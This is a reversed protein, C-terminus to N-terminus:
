IADVKREFVKISVQKVQIQHLLYYESSNQLSDYPGPEINDLIMLQAKADYETVVNHFFNQTSLFGTNNSTLHIFELYGPAYISKNYFNNHEMYVVLKEQAQIRAIVTLEDNYITFTYLGMAVMIGLIIPFYFPKMSRIFQQCMLGLVIMSFLLAPFLYRNEFFNICCFYIYLLSCLTLLNIFRKQVPQLSPQRKAFLVIFVIIFYATFLYAIADKYNFFYLLLYIIVLSLVVLLYGMKKQRIAAVISLIGGLCWFWQISNELFLFTLTRTINYLTNEVKLNIMSTHGPNLYWGLRQKQMFFFVGALLLPVVLALLKRGMQPYNEKRAISLAIDIAVMAALVFGSEKTYYTLTLFVGAMFFQAKAYFCISLLMFLALMIDNLVFSSDIFFFHSLLLLALCMMAAQPSFLRMIIEYVVVALLVSIFLPFSHMAAHSDGFLDMWLACAAQFFLPHGRSYSLPIAGPMLSPGHAYMESVSPAYVWSEDWYFAINLHHLKCIVFVLLSIILFWRRKLFTSLM